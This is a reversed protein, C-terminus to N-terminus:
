GPPRASALANLVAGSAKRTEVPGPPEYRPLLADIDAPLKRDLMERWLRALKIDKSLTRELRERWARREEAGREANPRFVDRM